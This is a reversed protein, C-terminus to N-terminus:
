QPVVRPKYLDYIGPLEEREFADLTQPNTFNRAPSLYLDRLAENLPIEYAYEIDSSPIAHVQLELHIPARGHETQNVAVVRWRRNESEVLIDRPKLHVIDVCRATTNIQHTPGTNTNQETLSSGPDFQIWAEIPAMYGRMFGTDYCSRCGSRIRKQLTPNWCSCRQGFTRVPLVWCRRGTFERLLLGMHRRLELTIIDADAQADVPGFTKQSGDRIDTVVLQYQLLRGAHFPRHTRDYFLYKDQFPPSLVDWPGAVAESRQLQFTYDLVDTTIDDIKWSIELFDVDLSRVKLERVDLM